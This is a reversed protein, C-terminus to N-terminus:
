VLVEKGSRWYSLQKNKALNLLVALFILGLAIYFKKVM